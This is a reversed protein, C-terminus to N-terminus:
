SHERLPHRQRREKPVHRLLFCLFSSANPVCLQETRDTRLEYGGAASNEGAAAGRVTTLSAPAEACM